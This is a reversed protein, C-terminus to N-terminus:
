VHQLFHVQRGKYSHTATREFVSFGLSLEKDENASRLECGYQTIQVPFKSEKKSDRIGKCNETAVYKQSQQFRRERGEKGNGTMTRILVM